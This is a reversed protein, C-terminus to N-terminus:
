RNYEETLIELERDLEDIQEQVLSAKARLEEMEARADGELVVNGTYAPDALASSPTALSALVMLLMGPLVTMLAPRLAGMLAAVKTAPLLQDSRHRACRNVM